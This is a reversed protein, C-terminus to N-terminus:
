IESLLSVLIIMTLLLLSKGSHSLPPLLCLPDPDSIPPPYSLLGSPWSFSHFYATTSPPIYSPDRSLGLFQFTLHVWSEIHHGQSFYGINPLYLKFLGGGATLCPGWYLFPIM